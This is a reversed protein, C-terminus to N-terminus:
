HGVRVRIRADGGDAMGGNSGKGQSLRAAESGGIKEVKMRWRRRKKKEKEKENKRPENRIM